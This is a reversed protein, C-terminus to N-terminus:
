RDASQCDEPPVVPAYHHREHSLATEVQQSLVPVAWGKVISGSLGANFATRGRFM